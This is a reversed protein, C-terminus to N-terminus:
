ADWLLRRGGRKMELEQFYQKIEDRKRITNWNAYFPAEYHKGIEEYKLAYVGFVRSIINTDDSTAVLFELAKEKLPGLIDGVRYAEEPDFPPTLHFSKAWEMPPSTFCVRETYLYYLVEFPEIALKPVPM